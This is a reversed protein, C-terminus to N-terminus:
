VIHPFLNLKTDKEVEKAAVKKSYNRIAEAKKPMFPDICETIEQIGYYLTNLTKSLKDIEQDKYLKWPEHDNVYKDLMKAFAFIPKLANFLDYAEFSIKYAENMKQAGDQIKRDANKGHLEVQYEIIMTFVREMLNGFGNALDDNYKSSFNEAKIDGHETAPFQSLLLYRTADSGFKEIMVLPDITNGITKSMKQGNVTFLGHVFINKPLPMDASLLLGPWFISHFKNIEAGIIHLDAPWFKKFQEGDPFGLASVYNMLAEVWVYITQSEDYPYPIGWKVKERTISFDPIGAEIIRLVENKRTEPIIAVEGNEIRKQIRPLYKKLNFFYNKEKVKQPLTLHDPCLGNVLEKETYFKECDTCYLGEYFSEYIDGATRLKEFFVLIGKKHWEATTRVFSDYAIDLLEWTKKYEAAIEDVFEQPAKGSEEAKLAIKQGHEDLGVTFFIDKGLSKQYRSIVDGYITTFAHGIHPKGSAYYIPTTIYFTEKM